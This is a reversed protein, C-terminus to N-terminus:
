SNFTRGTAVVVGRPSRRERDAEADSVAVGVRKDSETCLGIRIQGKM